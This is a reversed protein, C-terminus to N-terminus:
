KLFHSNVLAIKQNDTLHDTQQLEIKISDFAKDDKLINLLETKADTPGFLFVEDYNKIENGLREYYDAQQQQEKNHMKREGKSLAEVKDQHTFISLITDLKIAKNTFLFLDASAHDMWIGLKKNANM